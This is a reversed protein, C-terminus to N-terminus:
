CDGIAGAKSPALNKQQQHVNTTQGVNPVPCVWARARVNRPQLAAAIKVGSPHAVSLGLRCSGIAASRGRDTARQGAPPNVLRCTESCSFVVIGNDTSCLRSINNPNSGSSAASRRILSSSPWQMGCPVRVPLSTLRSASAKRAQHSGTSHPVCVATTAWGAGTVPARPVWLPPNLRATVKACDKSQAQRFSSGALRLESM